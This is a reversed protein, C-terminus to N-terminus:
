FDILMVILGSIYVGETFSGGSLSQVKQGIYVTKGSVIKVFNVYIFGKGVKSM